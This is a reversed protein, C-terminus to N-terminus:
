KKKCYLGSSRKAVNLHNRVVNESFTGFVAPYDSLLTRANTNKNVKGKQILKKLFKDEEGDTKWHKSAKPM